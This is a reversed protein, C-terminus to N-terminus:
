PPYKVVNFFAAVTLAATRQPAWPSPNGYRNIARVVVFAAIAAAGAAILARRRREAPWAYLSAAASGLAMGAVWPVLPHATFLGGPIAFGPVHLLRWAVALAGLDDPRISDFLNHGAIVALALVALLDPRIRILLAMAIMSWALAWLVVAFA